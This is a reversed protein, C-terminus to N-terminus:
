HLKNSSHTHFKMFTTVFEAHFAKQTGVIVSM